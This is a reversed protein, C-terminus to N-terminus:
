NTIEARAKKEMENYLYEFWNMTKPMNYQKRVGEWVPELKEWAISASDGVIAEVISRDILRKHLLFGVGQYYTSMTGVALVEKGDGFVDGYKRVFDTYDKFELRWVKSWAERIEHRDAQFGPNFQLILGFHRAKSIDRLQLITMIVGVVVSAAAIVTSITAIDM